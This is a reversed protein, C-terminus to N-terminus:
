EEYLRPDVYGQDWWSICSFCISTNSPCVYRDPKPEPITDIIVKDGNTSQYFTTTKPGENEQKVISLTKWPILIGCVCCRPTDNNEIDNAVIQLVEPLSKM